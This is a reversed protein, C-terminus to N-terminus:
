RRRHGLWGPRPIREWWPIERVPLTPPTQDPSDAPLIFEGLTPLPQTLGYAVSLREFPVKNDLSDYDDPIPLTDIPYPGWGEMWSKKFIDRIFPLKSGGGCVFIQVRDREWESQRRRHSYAEGWVRHSAEWLFKLEQKISQQLALPMKNINEIARAVQLESFIEGQRLLYDAIIREVRQTGRPINRAAYFYKISDPERVNHLNFISFDTTGAGFDIVAHLGNRAQLSVLYSVIEAVAEPVAFVRTNADSPDYKSLRYKERSLELLNNLNNDNWEAEVNEATALIAEFVYRVNNNQIHDIPMCINFALDVEYDPFERQITLRAQRMAFALYASTLYEPECEAQSVMGRKTYDEFARATAEDYFSKDYKGAVVVKFRRLGIDWQKDALYHAAEAGFLLKGSNDFAGVSPLCYSPYHPLSHNFLVPRVRRGKGGLQSYAIKTSSTGFDLGIQFHIIQRHRGISMLKDDINVSKTKRKFWKLFEQRLTM